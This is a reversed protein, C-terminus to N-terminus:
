PLQGVHGFRAARLTAVFAHVADMDFSGAAAPVDFREGGRLSVTWRSRLRYTDGESNPGWGM